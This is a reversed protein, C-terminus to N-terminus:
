ERGLSWSIAAVMLRKLTNSIFHTPPFSENASFSLCAHFQCNSLWPQSHENSTAFGRKTEVVARTQWFLSSNPRTELFITMIPKTLKHERVFESPVFFSWWDCNLAGATETVPQKAARRLRVVDFQRFLKIPCVIFSSKGFCSSKGM